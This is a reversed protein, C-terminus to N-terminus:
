LRARVVPARNRKRQHAPRPRGAAGSAPLRISQPFGPLAAIRQMFHSVSCRLYAACDKSDWLAIQIPIAPAVRDAVAAALQDIINSM